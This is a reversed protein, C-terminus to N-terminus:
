SSQPLLSIIDHHGNERVGSATVQVFKAKKWLKETNLAGCYSYGSRIGAVFIEVVEALPGKYPVFGEVGEIHKVYKESKGSNDKEM